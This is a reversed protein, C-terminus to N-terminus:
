QQLTLWQRDFTIGNQSCSDGMLYLYLPMLDEATMLTDPDENPYAAARMKTRTGGPNLINVKIESTNALEEALLKAFGEMAYKSVSYAGWYARPTKGVGSSTFITRASPALRLLPLLIRTLYCVNTFNVHMVRAWTNMDYHEVPVRDGLISANHLLGDLRGYQELLVDGLEQLESIDQTALDLVAIGPEQLGDAVIEDYLTELNASKRGLLVVTAGNSAYTKAAVRGIGDGAGTVLIVKESLDINSHPM